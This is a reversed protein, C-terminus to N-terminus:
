EVEVIAPLVLRGDRDTLGPRVIRRVAGTTAGDTSRIDLWDPSVEHISGPAVTRMSLGAQFIETLASEIRGIREPSAAREREQGTWFLEWTQVAASELTDDISARPWRSLSDILSRSFPDEVERLIPVLSRWGMPAPGAGIRLACPEGVGGDRMWGFRELSVLQGKAERSRFLFSVGPTEDAELRDLTLEPAEFRFARPLIHVGREGAFERIADLIDRKELVGLTETPTALLAALLQALRDNPDGAADADLADAFAALDPTTEPISRRLSSVAVPPVPPVFAVLWQWLAIPFRRELVPRLASAEEALRELLEAVAGNASADGARVCGALERLIPSPDAVEIEPSPVGVTRGGVTALCGFSRLAPPRLDDIWTLACGDPSEPLTEVARLTLGGFRAFRPDATLDTSPSPSVDAPL